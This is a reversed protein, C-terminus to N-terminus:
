RIPPQPQPRVERQLLRPDIRQLQLNPPPPLPPLVIDLRDATYEGQAPLATGRLQASWAAIEASRAIDHFQTVLETAARNQRGDYYAFGSQRQDRASMVVAVARVNASQTLEAAIRQATQVDADSRVHLIVTRLPPAPAFLDGILRGINRDTPARTEPAPTSAPPTPEARAPTEPAQDTTPDAAAPAEEAPAPLEVSGPYLDTNPTQTQAVVTPAPPVVVGRDALSQELQIVRERLRDRDRILDNTVALTWGALGVAGISVFLQATLM